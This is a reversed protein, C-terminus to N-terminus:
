KWWDPDKQVFKILMELYRKAKNLDELGNKADWRLIYKVINAQFFNLNNECIFRVPEIKFRAYHHPLTVNDGSLREAASAVNLFTHLAHHEEPSGFPTDAFFDVPIGSPDLPMEMDVLAPMPGSRDAPARASASDRQTLLRRPRSEPVATLNGGIEEPVEVMDPHQFADEPPHQYVGSGPIGKPQEKPAVQVLADELWDQIPEVKPTEKSPTRYPWMGRVQEETLNPAWDRTYPDYHHGHPPKDLISVPM